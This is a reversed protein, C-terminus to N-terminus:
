SKVTDTPLVLVQVFIWIRSYYHLDLPKLQEHTVFDSVTYSRATDVCYTSSNVRLARDYAIDLEFHLSCNYVYTGLYLKLAM